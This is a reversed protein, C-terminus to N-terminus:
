FFNIIIADYAPIIFLSPLTNGIRLKAVKLINVGIGMVIIGGTQSIGNLYQPNDTLFALQSAFIAIGGQYVLIPIAAFIVGAGLTSAFIVSCIGDLLSKIYLLSPDGSLGDRLAGVIAAAGV